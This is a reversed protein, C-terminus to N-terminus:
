LEEFKSASACALGRYENSSNVIAAIPSVKNVDALASLLFAWIQEVDAHPYLPGPLMCNPVSREWVLAGDSAFSAVKVNTKGIDLVATVGSM